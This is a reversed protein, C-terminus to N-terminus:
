NRVYRALYEPLRTGIAAPQMGLSAFGAAGDGAVSDAKLLRVQDRTLAPPIPLLECFFGLLSALASPLPLLCFDRKTQRRLEELLQRFTFTEPGALEYTKGATDAQTACHFIATAVDAVLVPQFKTTGGGILPLAPLLSSMRAFRQFFDDEPGIVLSPRLIVAGPFAARVADEGAKKSRAYKADSKGASLASLHVLTKAGAKAAQAAVAGAGRVHVTDFKQRGGQYLIGVLNVVALSGAFKGELTEPRAIDAHDLVIQGPYGAMKLFDAKVIDRVLVRVRWGANAFHKVTHRGIFGSGGVITVLPYQQM